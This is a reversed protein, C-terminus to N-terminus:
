KESLKEIMVRQQKVERRLEKIAEVLLANVGSPSINLYGDHEGVAEPLVDRLRQAIIGAERIDDGIKQKKDYILGSLHDVKDLANEIYEFNSKLREDSDIHVDNVYLNRPIRMDGSGLMNFSVNGVLHRVIWDPGDGPAHVDVAAIHSRGWHTAKWINFANNYSDGLNVQIGSPRDRWENWGGGAVEGSILAGSGWNVAGIIHVVGGNNVKVNYMTLGGEKIDVGKSMVSLKNGVFVERSTNNIWLPHPDSPKDEWPGLPDGSKTYSIRTNM